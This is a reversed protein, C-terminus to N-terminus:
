NNVSEIQAVKLSTAGHTTLSPLTGGSGGPGSWVVTWTVTATVPFAGDNPNGDPSPQGASTTTYTHSCSTSQADAPVAPNYVTGPGNCTLYVRRRHGVDRVVPHCDGVRDHVRRRQVGARLHHVPALGVPEIACGNLSISTAPRRRASRWRPIPFRCSAPRKPAPRRRILLRPVPFRAPPSGRVGTAIGQAAGEACLDVYWAGPQAAGAPPPGGDAGPYAVSYPVYDPCQQQAAGGDGSSSGSGGGDRRREGPGWWGRVRVDGHQRLRHLGRLQRRCLRHRETSGLFVRHRPRCHRGNSACGNDADRFRRRRSPRSRGRATLWSSIGPGVEGM